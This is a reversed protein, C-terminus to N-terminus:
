EPPGTAARGPRPAPVPSPATRRVESLWGHSPVATALSPPEALSRPPEGPAAAACTLLFDGYRRWWGPFEDGEAARVVLPSWEPGAAGLEVEVSRTDRRLGTRLVKLASEKASWILNALVSRDGAAVTERERATFWTRVFAASRPEVLELDCGLATGPPGLLCVAWDARDTLSVALPAPVGDHCVVPAGSSAPRVEIRALSGPDTGLGLVEAIAQKATWRSLRLESRRKPHPLGALRASEAASLWDDASPVHRMGHALWSRTGNLTRM